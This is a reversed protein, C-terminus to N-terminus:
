STSSSSGTRPMELRYSRQLLRIVFHHHLRHGYVIHFSQVEYATMALLYVDSEKSPNSNLLSFQPPNLLEPAMYRVVGRKSTTTSDPEMVTPNAIVGTVGFDGLRVTGGDAILINGQVSHLM